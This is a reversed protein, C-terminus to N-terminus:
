TLYTASPELELVWLRSYTEDCPMDLMPQDRGALVTPEYADDTAYSGRHDRTSLCESERHIPIPEGCSTGVKTVSLGNFPSCPSQSPKGAFSCTPSSGPGQPVDLLHRLGLFCLAALAALASSRWSVQLNADQLRQRSNM